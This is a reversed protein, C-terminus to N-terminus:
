LPTDGENLYYSISSILTTEMRQFRTVVLGPSFYEESEASSNQFLQWVTKVQIL